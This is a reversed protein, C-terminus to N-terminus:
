SKEMEGEITQPAILGFETKVPEGQGVALVKAEPEETNKIEEPNPTNKDSM